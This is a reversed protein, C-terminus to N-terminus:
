VQSEVSDYNRKLLCICITLFKLSYKKEDTLLSM